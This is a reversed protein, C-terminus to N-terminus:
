SRPGPVHRRVCALSIFCVCMAAAILGFYARSGGGDIAWTGAYGSLIAGLRGISIAVGAGTARVSSPYVHTVLAYMTTQVANILGGTLALLALIPGVAAGSHIAMASLATAGVIAGGTMTLMAVRSGVSSIALAGAIAGVIGGLNFFTIGSSAVEPGFGASSLLSPLWSFGLYVALLCSLFSAWLALTDRRFERQLLQGVPVRVTPPESSDVFTANDSVNQGMRRLLKVLEPWRAPRRALYRPSEPLLRILIVAALLPVAGGVVFLNRWGFASLASIGLVGAITAGLPVCVITITVALARRRRGVFEAALTAANPMAGGLGLGALFRLAALAGLDHVFATALTTAGFVATSILLATRRGFRDGALGAAAGGLMMGVYGLSVIPAFASRPVAWEKMMTPIAIGLLQNDIGDFVITMATLFILWAQYPHWRADDLRQGADVSPAAELPQTM